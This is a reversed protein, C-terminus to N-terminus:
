PTSGGANGDVLASAVWGGGALEYWRRDPTHVELDTIAPGYAWAVCNFAQGPYIERLVASATTPLARVNVSPKAEPMVRVSFSEVHPGPAPPAPTPAPAAGELLFKVGSSVACVRDDFRGPGAPGNMEDITFTNGSVGIVAAVHGYPAEAGDCGPQFCAVSGVVPSNSLVGGHSAWNVAWAYANGLNGYRLVWNELEAAGYTCQGNPYIQPYSM